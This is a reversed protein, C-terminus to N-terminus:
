AEREIKTEFFSRMDEEMKQKLEMRRVERRQLVKLWDM